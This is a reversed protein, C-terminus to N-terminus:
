LYLPFFGCYKILNKFPKVKAKVMTIKIVAHDSSLLSALLFYHFSTEAPLIAFNKLSFILNSLICLFCGGALLRDHLVQYKSPM